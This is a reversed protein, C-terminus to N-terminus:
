RWVDSGGLSSRWIIKDYAVTTYSALSTVKMVWKGALGVNDFSSRNSNQEPFSSNWDHKSSANNQQGGDRIIEHVFERM